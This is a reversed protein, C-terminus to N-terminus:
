FFAVLNMNLHLLILAWIAWGDVLLDYSLSHREKRFYVIWIAGFVAVVPSLMCLLVDLGALIVLTRQKGLVVPLTRVGEAADGKIDRIDFLVTDIFVLLFALVYLWWAGCVLGAYCVASVSAVILNKVGLLDKPRVGCIRATYVAGGIGPVLVAFLKSADWWVVLAIAAVYSITTLTKIPYKALIARQPNNVLDEKSGSVKDRAYIAFMVLSTILCAVPDIPLGGVLCLLAPRFALAFAIWLSSVVLFSFLRVASSLLSNM